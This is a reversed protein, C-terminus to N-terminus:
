TIAHTNPSSRCVNDHHQILLPPSYSSSVICYTLSTLNPAAIALSTMIGSVYENPETMTVHQLSLMRYKRLISPNIDDLAMSIRILPSSSLLKMCLDSSETSDVKSTLERLQPCRDIIAELVWVNIHSSCHLSTLSSPVTILDTQRASSLHLLQTLSQLIVTPSSDNWQRLTLSTLFTLQEWLDIDFTISDVHLSRLTAKMAVLAELIDSSVEFLDLTVPRHRILRSLDAPLVGLHDIDVEFPEIKPKIVYRGNFPQSENRQSISWWSKNITALSLNDRLRLQSLIISKISSPLENGLRGNPSASEPLESSLLSDRKIDNNISTTTSSTTLRGPQRSRAAGNSTVQKSMMKVDKSSSSRQPKVFSVGAIKGGGLRRRGDVETPKTMKRENAIWLTSSTTSSSARSSSSNHPPGHSVSSGKQRHDGSVSRPVSSSGSPTMTLPSAALSRTSSSSPTTVAPSPSSPPLSQLSQLSSWIPTMQQQLLTLSQSSPSTPSSAITSLMNIWIHVNDITISNQLATIQGEKTVQQLSRLL